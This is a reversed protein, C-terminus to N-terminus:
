DTHITKRLVLLCSTGISRGSVLFSIHVKENCSFRQLLYVVRVKYDARPPRIIANVLEQYGMKAMQIYSPKKQEQEDSERQKQNGGSRSSNMRRYKSEVAQEDEGIEQRTHKPQCNPATTGANVVENVKPSDLPEDYETKYFQEEEQSVDNGMTSCSSVTIVDVKKKRRTLTESYQLSSCSTSAPSRRWNESEQPGNLEQPLLPRKKEYCSISRTSRTLAGLAGIAKALTWHRIPGDGTDLVQYSTSNSYLLSTATAPPGVYKTRVGSELTTCTCPVTADQPIRCFHLTLLPLLRHILYLRDAATAKVIGVGFAVTCALLVQYKTCTSHKSMISGITCYLSQPILRDVESFGPNGSGRISSKDSLSASHM